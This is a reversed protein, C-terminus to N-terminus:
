FRMQNETRHIQDDPHVKLLLFLPMSLRRNIQLIDLVKPFRRIENEIIFYSDILKKPIKQLLQLQIHRSQDITHAKNPPIHLTTHPNEIKVSLALIDILSIVLMLQRDILPITLQVSLSLLSIQM